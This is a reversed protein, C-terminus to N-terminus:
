WQFLNIEKKKSSQSWRNLPKPVKGGVSPENYCLIWYLDRVVSQSCSLSTLRHFATSLSNLCSLNRTNSFTYPAGEQKSGKASGFALISTSLVQFVTSFGKWTTTRWFVIKPVANPENRWGRAGGFINHDWVSENGGMWWKWKSWLVGQGGVGLNEEEEGGRRVLMGGLLKWLWNRRNWYQNRKPRSYYLTYQPRHSFWPSNLM